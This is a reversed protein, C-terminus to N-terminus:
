NEILFNVEYIKIPIKSKSSIDSNNFKLTKTREDKDERTIKLIRFKKLMNKDIIFIIRFTISIQLHKKVLKERHFRIM